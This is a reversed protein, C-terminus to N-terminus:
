MQLKITLKLRPKQLKNTQCPWELHLPRSVRAIKIDMKYNCKEIVQFLLPTNVTTIQNDKIPICKPLKNTQCPWLFHLPRNVRAIKVDTKANSKHKVQFLLPTNVTAIRNDKIVSCKPLKNTQCLWKFHLPRNVRAIKGEM